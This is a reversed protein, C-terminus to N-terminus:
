PKVIMEEGRQIIKSPQFYDPNALLFHLQYGRLSRRPCYEGFRSLYLIEDRKWIDGKRSKIVTFETIATYHNKNPIIMTVPQNPNRM